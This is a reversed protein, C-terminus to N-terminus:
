HGPLSWRRFGRPGETLWTGDGLATAPGAPEPYRLAGLPRLTATSCLWHRAAPRRGPSQQRATVLLHGGDLACVDEFVPDSERHGDKGPARDGPKRGTLEALDYLAVPDDTTIDHVALEDRDDDPTLREARRLTLPRDTGPVFGVAERMRTGGRLHLGDRRPAVWWTSWSYWATWCSLALLRGDPHWRQTVVSARSNLPRSARVRGDVADVLLLVDRGHCPGPLPEECETGGDPAPVLVGVLTGDPSVAPDGPAKPPGSGGRWPPHPLEWRVGGDAGVARVRDAEAIVVGDGLPAAPATVSVEVSSLPTGGGLFAATEYLELRDARRLTLLTGAATVVTGPATDVAGAPVADIPTGAPRKM